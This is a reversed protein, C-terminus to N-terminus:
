RRHPQSDVKGCLSGWGWEDGFTMTGLSAESVRLGSKGLLRYKMITNRGPNLLERIPEARQWTCDATSAGMKLCRQFRSIDGNKPKWQARPKQKSCGSKRM